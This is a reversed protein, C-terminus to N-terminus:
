MRREIWVTASGGPRPVGASNSVYFTLTFLGPGDPVFLFDFDRADLLRIRDDNRVGSVRLLTTGEPLYAVYSRPYSYSTRANAQERTLPKPEAERGVVVFRIREGSVTRGAFRVIGSRPDARSLTLRELRRVLFEQAMQFRGGAVDWGVGVHTAEPDLITKRHGDNPPRESFMQEEGELALRLPPEPFSRGTSTWSVSNEAQMGFIAAFSTRAYPPIGDMLFHGNSREEIQRHCFAQAVGAASQDWAIAPLGASRRDENIRDFVAAAVPEDPRAPPPFTETLPRALDPARVRLGGAARLGIPDDAPSGASGAVSGASGVCEAQCFLFALLASLM